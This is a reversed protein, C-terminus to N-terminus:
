REMGSYGRTFTPGHEALLCRALTQRLAEFIGGPAPELSAKSFALHSAIKNVENKQPPPVEQCNEANQPALIERQWFCCGEEEEEEAEEEGELQNPDGRPREEGGGGGGEEEEEEENM